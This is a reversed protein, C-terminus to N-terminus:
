GKRSRRRKTTLQKYVPATLQRNEYVFDHGCPVPWFALAVAREVPEAWGAAECEVRGPQEKGETKVQELERCLGAEHDADGASGDGKGEESPGKEPNDWGLWENRAPEAAAVEM